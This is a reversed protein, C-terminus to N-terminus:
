GQRHPSSTPNIPTNASTGGGFIKPKLWDQPTSAPSDDATTVTVKPRNNPDITPVPAIEQSNALEDVMENEDFYDLGQTDKVDNTVPSFTNPFNMGTRPISLAPNVGMPPLSPRKQAGAKLLFAATEHTGANVSFSSFNNTAVAIGRYLHTAIDKDINIKAEKLVTFVLESISSAQKNVLNMSGFDTNNFHRDINVLDVGVFMKQNDSYITGAANLSPIDICIIIDAKGGTFSFSVTKPDLKAFGVQPAILLNFRNTNEDINYTVSDVSGETYPFSMMLTDGSTSLTNSLKESGPLSKLKEPLQGASALVVNKGMNSMALHLALGASLNDENIIEPLLIIVSGVEEVKKFLRLSLGPFDSM